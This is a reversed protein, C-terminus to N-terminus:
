AAVEKRGFAAPFRLQVRTGHEPLREIEVTGSLSQARERMINLGFHMDKDGKGRAAIGAGDDEVTVICNDGQRDITLRAHQAKSHKNVNALAEQVIRFVQVEQDVTLNLDPAQNIFELEIGTKDHYGRVIEQLAHVLGLPDMRNRFHALLERLSSYAGDLAQSLDGVYKSSLPEDGKDLSGQLLALRMKMYALMQALSDHVENAMMQRENM